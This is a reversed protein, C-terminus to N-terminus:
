NPQGKHRKRRGEKTWPSVDIEHRGRLRVTTPQLFRGLLFTIPVSQEIGARAREVLTNAHVGVPMSRRGADAKYSFDSAQRFILLSVHYPCWPKPPSGRPPRSPYEYTRQPCPTADHRV